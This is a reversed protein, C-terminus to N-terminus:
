VGLSQRYARVPDHLQAITLYHGEPDRALFMHGAGNDTIETLVDVGKAKWDRWTAEIDDVDFSIEVGGESSPRAWPLAAADQLAIPTGGGSRLFIFTDNTFQPIIELGLKGTYFDKAQELDRCYLMVLIVRPQM